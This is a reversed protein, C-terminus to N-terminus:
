PADDDSPSAPRTLGLADIVRDLDRLDGVVRRRPAPSERVLAPTGLVRGQEAREPAEMVDVVEWEVAERVRGDALRSVAARAAASRVTNGAVYLM